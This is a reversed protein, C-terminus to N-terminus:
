VIRQTINKNIESWDPHEALLELVERWSFVGHGFHNYVKRVFDLDEATDVTWRMGSYDVGVDGNVVNKLSFLEPHKYIYPTVHERWQTDERWVKKLASLRMVECELGLPYTRVIFNSAYDVRSAYFEAVVKDIVAPEIFPADSTIRVVNDAHYAVATQYYRDLVDEESGKTCLFGRKNCLNWIVVDKPNTTTAVIVKDLLRALRVRNVVRVLMPEGALDMLVKSPLRSSGM